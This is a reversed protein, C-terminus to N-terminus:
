PGAVRVLEITTETPTPPPAVADPRLMREALARRLSEVAAAETPGEGAADSELCEALFGPGERVLRYTLRMITRGERRKM